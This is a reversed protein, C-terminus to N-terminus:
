GLRQGASYAQQGGNLTSCNNGEQTEERRNLFKQLDSVIHLFPNSRMYGVNRKLVGTLDEISKTYCSMENRYQTSHMS